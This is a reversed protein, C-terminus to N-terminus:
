AFSNFWLQQVLVTSGRDASGLSNFRSQQVLVTSGPSNFRSQQVPNQHVPIRNFRAESSGPNQHVQSQHVPVRNFRSEESITYYQPLIVNRHKRKM